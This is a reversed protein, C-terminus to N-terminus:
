WGRLAKGARATWTYTEVQQRAQDTLSRALEPDDLLREVATQWASVDEPPCFLASGADLTEHIVPLDSTIIPREAAMYEFMKMSSFYRVPAAGSSGGVQRAYPMLLIDAAAQYRPLEANPVFGTFTTNVLGMAAAQGQWYAVDKPFGGAWLFQVEPLRGALGLFLEVGRGAYLHGTCAVTPRDPLRLEKRAESPNPLGDYRELEVGNPAIVTDLQANFNKRLDDALRETIVLQRKKGRVRLFLRYWLRGFRGPPVDHIEVIAPIGLLLAASASQFYWTYIVEPKYRRARWVARWPFVRRATRGEYPPIYELRFPVELGYLRALETWKETPTGEPEEGPVILVVEHGLRALAHCAKMAQISNASESPIRSPSTCVIRM